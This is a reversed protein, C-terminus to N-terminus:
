ETVVDPHLFVYIIDKFPHNNALCWEYQNEYYDDEGEYGDERLPNDIYDPIYVSDFFRYIIGALTDFRESEIDGLDAGQLDVVGYGDEYKALAFDFFALFDDIKMNVKEERKTSTKSKIEVDVEDLDFDVIHGRYDTIWLVNDKVNYKLEMVEWTTSIDKRNKGTVIAILKTEYM